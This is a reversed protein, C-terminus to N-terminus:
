AGVYVVHYVFSTQVSERAHLKRKAANAEKVSSYIRYSVYGTDYIYVLLVCERWVKIEIAPHNGLFGALAAVSTNPWVHWNGNICTFTYTM